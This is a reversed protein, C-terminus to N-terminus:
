YVEKKGMKLMKFKSKKAMQTNPLPQQRPASAQSNKRPPPTLGMVAIWFFLVIDGMAKNDM